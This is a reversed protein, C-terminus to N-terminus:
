SRHAYGRALNQRLDAVFGESIAADHAISHWLGVENVYSRMTKLGDEFQNWTLGMAEPRIDLGISSITNLMEDTGDEHLMSGVIVGRVPEGVPNLGALSQRARPELYPAFALMATNYILACVLWVAM